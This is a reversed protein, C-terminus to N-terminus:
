LMIDYEVFETEYVTWIQELPDIVGSVCYVSHYVELELVNCEQFPWQLSTAVDVLSM